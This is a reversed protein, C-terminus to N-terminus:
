ATKGPNTTVIACCWIGDHGPMRIDCLAVAPQTTEFHGLAEEASAATTVDYGGAELWRAMVNRVDHEDDVILVSNARAEDRAAPQSHKPAVM